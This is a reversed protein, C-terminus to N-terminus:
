AAEAPAQQEGAPEKSGGRVDKTLHAPLREACLADLLGIAEDSWPVGGHPRVSAFSRKSMPVAAEDAYRAMAILCLLRGAIDAPTKAGALFERAKDACESRTPYEVKVSGNKKETEITWGPFGYRAGRMALGGIDAGTDIATLVKMVAADVRTRALEKLVAAGLETNHAAAARRQALEQEREASRQAHLAEEDTTASGGGGARAGNTATTRTHNERQVSLCHAIYDAALEDGVDEGVILVPREHKDCHVAKLARARELSRHGFRVIFEERKQRTLGVLEDLQTSTQENLTFATVPHNANPEFLGAPLDTAARAIAGVPDETVERWTLPPEWSRRSTGVGAAVLAPLEPHIRGVTVLARVGAPPITGDAVKAHLGEPLKLIELRETIRKQALGLREAIGKRTLGTDLLRQFGLAEQVPDLEERALNEVMALELGDTKLDVATVLVPIETLGAETAALWRGEGAILWFRETDDPVPTVLIPSLVGDAKVSRVLQAFAEPNRATRPNFGERPSVNELPVMRVDGGRTNQKQETM